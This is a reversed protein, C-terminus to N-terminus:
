RMDSFKVFRKALNNGSVKKYRSIEASKGTNKEKMKLIDRLYDFKNLLLLSRLHRFSGLCQLKM